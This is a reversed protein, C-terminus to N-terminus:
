QMKFSLFVDPPLPVSDVSELELFFKNHCAIAFCFSRKNAMITYNGAPQWFNPRLVMDVIVRLPLFGDRQQCREVRYSGSFDDTAEPFDRAYCVCHGKLPCQERRRKTEEAAEAGTGGGGTRAWDESRFVWLLTTPADPGVSRGWWGWDTGRVCAAAFGWALDRLLWKRVRPAAAAPCGRRGQGQGQGPGPGPARAGGEAAEAGRGQPGLLALVGRQVAAYQGCWWAVREDKTAGGLPSKARRAAM